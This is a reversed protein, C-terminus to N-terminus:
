GEAPGISRWAKAVPEEDVGLAVHLKYLAARARAAAIFV